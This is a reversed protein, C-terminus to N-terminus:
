PSEESSSGQRAFLTRADLVSDILADDNPLLGDLILLALGHASAWAQLAITQARKEDGGALALANRSLLDSALNQGAAHEDDPGGHIFALRFLAPHALAFRVYARGTAAFGASRGPAAEQATRQAEGLLRFGEGGLATLLAKKDPFHRYVAAPSVGAERALARLSIEAEGGHELAQLGAHLLAARLDGHHYSKSTSV